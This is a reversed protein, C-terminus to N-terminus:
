YLASSVDVSNMRRSIFDGKLIRRQMKYKNSSYFPSYGGTVMMFIVVGTSWMDAATNAGRCTMVEPAMFELTGVMSIALSPSGQMSRALGFDIIKVRPDSNDRSVCVINNPKLDLHVIDRSHIYTLGELVQKLFAKCKSETLDYTKSSIREFLEGGPLYETVIVSELGSEYFATLTVVNRHERLTELLLLERRVHGRERDEECRQHKAAFLEKNEKTKVLYVTGFSGGGLKKVM